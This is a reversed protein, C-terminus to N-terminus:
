IVEGYAILRWQNNINKSIAIKENIELIEENKLNIELEDKKISKIFGVSTNTGITLVLPDNIKLEANKPDFNIMREFLTMKIKMQNTPKPLSDIKALIKGRLQDNQAISPDLDTGIAILGGAHAENLLGKNTSISLVKIKTKGDIGPCLELEDGIKVIGQSISGGLIAGKIKKIETGPKNIDFSRAVFMKLPKKLDLNPSPITEEIAEILLDINAGFSASTPIIKANEFGYDKLFKKIKKYNEIVKEKTVLDIKNQAVVINQVGAFKLAMLHEITRPQPCEENAAVVLIAGNMLAAGSLMTTMLTEHGPADVISITRQSIIEGEEKNSYKIGNPTKIKYFTTDAYGLRISIGRKTRRQAYWDM